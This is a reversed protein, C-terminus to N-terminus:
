GRAGALALADLLADLAELPLILAVPGGALRLRVPGTARNSTGVPGTPRLTLGDLPWHLGASRGTADGLPWLSVRTGAAVDIELAPPAICLCDDASLLVVPRPDGALASLAALGHDFRGGLFGAGLLLPAETTRLAKELDTSDQEAVHDTRDAFAARADDSLSDLDGVVREPTWGARRAVDAGGDVAVLRHARTLAISVIGTGCPAAGLLTVSASPDFSPISDPM